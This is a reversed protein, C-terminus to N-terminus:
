ELPQICAADNNDPKNVYSSVKYVSFAAVNNGLIQEAEDQSCDPAIWREYAEPDVVVPMRGHIEAIEPAAETTLIAFTPADKPGPPTWIGAFAFPTFGDHHFVWPQRPPKDGQWEYWGVAPILCRHRRAAQAFARSTFVTESRANIWARKAWAPQFGWILMELTLGGEAAPVIIPALQSPAFNYSQQYDVPAKLQWARELAQEDPTLYRGCM